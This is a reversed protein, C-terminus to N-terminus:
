FIEAIFKRIERAILDSDHHHLYHGSDLNLYRGKNARSVYDTLIGRWDAETVEKGDSIFFYMPIEIPFNTESIIRANKQLYNVENLMNKTYASRYFMALYQEKDEGSLDNSKLLPFNKEKEEQPMFRSLGMRSVLYMMSLQSSQPLELSHQIFDPVSPDLGIIAKVETPYTQAWYIAELGSMSHPVLVYPGKEGSLSLAERTEELMTAVDRSSHSAESWGYGPKEMVVIRYENRLRQWLPKFDLVPSATGHGSMFVFTLDGEGESFVHIKQKNVDVLQGPPPYKNVEKQLQYNHNFTSLGLLIAVIAVIVLVIIGIVQIIKIGM